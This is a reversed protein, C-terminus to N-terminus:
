LDNSVSTLQIANFTYGALTLSITQQRWNLSNNGGDPTLHAVAVHLSSRVIQHHFCWASMPNPDDPAQIKLQHNQAAVIGSEFTEFEITRFGAYLGLGLAKTYAEKLTWCKFFYDKRAASSLTHFRASESPSFVERALLEIDANREQDEVDVGILGQQTFAFAVMGNTHSISIDLTDNPCNELRPRGKEGYAILWQRAECGFTNELAAAALLRALAFQAQAGQHRFANLRKQDAASSLPWTAKPISHLEAAYVLLWVNLLTSTM